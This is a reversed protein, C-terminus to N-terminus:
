CIKEESPDCPNTLANEVEVLLNDLDMGGYHRGPEVHVGRAINDCWRALATVGCSQADLFDLAKEIKSGVAFRMFRGGLSLGGDKELVRVLHNYTFVSLVGYPDEATPDWLQLYTCCAKASLLTATVQPPLIVHMGFGRISLNSLTMRGGSLKSLTLHPRGLESASIRVYDRLPCFWVALERVFSAPVEVRYDTRKDSSHVTMAEHNSLIMIESGALM